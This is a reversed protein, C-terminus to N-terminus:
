RAIVVLVARGYATDSFPQVNVAQHLMKRQLSSGATYHASAWCRSFITRRTVLLWASPKKVVASCPKSRLTRAWAGSHGTTIASCSISWGASNATTFEQMGAPKQTMYLRRLSAGDVVHEPGRLLLRDIIGFMSANAGIGLALTLVIMAALMPERRLVRLAYRLDQRTADLGARVNMRRDRERARKSLSRQADTISGFRRRAEARAEAASLGRRMLQEIRLQIHLEIEEAVQRQADPRRRLFLRFFRRVGPRIM